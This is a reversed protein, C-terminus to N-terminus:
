DHLEGGNLYHVREAAEEETDHKSIARWKGDPEYFGVFWSGDFDSDIYVWSMVDGEKKSQSSTSGM